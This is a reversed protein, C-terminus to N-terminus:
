HTCFALFVSKAVADDSDIAQTYVYECTKVENTLIGTVVAMNYYSKTENPNIQLATAYDWYANEIKGMNAYAFGRMLYNYADNPDLGIAINLDAIAMEDGYEKLDTYIIARNYYASANSPNLKIAKTFDALASQYDGEQLYSSGRKVYAEDNRPEEQIIESYLKIAETYDGDVEKLHAKKLKENSNNQANLQTSFLVLFIIAFKIIKM